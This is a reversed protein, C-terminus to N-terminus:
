STSTRTPRWGPAERSELPLHIDVCTSIISNRSNAFPPNLLPPNRLKHTERTCSYYMLNRTDHAFKVCRIALGGKVLGEKTFERVYFDVFHHLSEQGLRDGRQLRALSWRFVFISVHQSSRNPLSLGYKVIEISTTYSAQSTCQQAGPIKVRRIRIRGSTGTHMIELSSPQCM